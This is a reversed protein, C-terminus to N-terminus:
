DFQGGSQETRLATSTAQTARGQRVVERQLDDRHIKRSQTDVKSVLQAALIRLQEPPLQDLDPLSTM